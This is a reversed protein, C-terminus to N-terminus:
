ERDKGSLWVLDERKTAQGPATPNQKAYRVFVFNDNFSTIAGDEPDAGGLYVVGRGIDKLTPNIM